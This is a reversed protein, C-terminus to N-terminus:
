QYRSHNNDCVCWKDNRSWSLVLKSFNSIRNWLFRSSRKNYLVVVSNSCLYQFISRHIWRVAISMLLWSAYSNRIMTEQRLFSYHLFFFVELRHTTKSQLFAVREVRLVESLLVELDISSHLGPNREFPSPLLNWTPSACLIIINSKKLTLSVLLRSTL